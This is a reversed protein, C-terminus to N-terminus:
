DGNLDGKLKLQEGAIIARLAAPIQADEKRRSVVSEHVRRFQGRLVEEDESQCISEWGLRDVVERTVPDMSELAEQPHTYGYRGIAKHVVAWSDSWDPQKENTIELATERIEAISPSWKQTAVWKKLATMALPYPIDQLMELWLDMAEPTELIRERSFITKLTAAFKAFEVKDM